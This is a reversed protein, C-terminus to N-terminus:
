LGKHVGHIIIRKRYSDFIVRIKRKYTLHGDVIKFNKCSKRFNAKNGKDKSIDGPYCKSKVFNEIKRLDVHKYNAM